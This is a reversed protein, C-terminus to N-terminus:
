GFGPSAPSLRGRARMEKEKVSVRASGSRAREVRSRAIWGPLRCRGGAGDGM